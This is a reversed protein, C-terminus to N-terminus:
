RGVGYLPHDDPIPDAPLEVPGACREITCRALPGRASTLMAVQPDLSNLVWTAMGNFPDTRAAEFSRWLVEVRLVAEPHRWWTRCWAPESGGTTSARREVHGLLWQQAFDGASPFLFPVEGGGSAPVVGAPAQQLDDVQRALHRVERTLDDLRTADDASM